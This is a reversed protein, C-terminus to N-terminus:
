CILSAVGHMEERLEDWIEQNKENIIQLSDKLEKITGDFDKDSEKAQITLIQIKVTKELREKEGQQLARIIGAIVRDSIEKEITQIEQSVDQFGETVIKCISHYQDAPCKGSLYDKFAIDFETYLEMRTGQAKLLKQLQKSLLENKTLNQNNTETM